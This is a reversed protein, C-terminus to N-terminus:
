LGFDIVFSYFKLLLYTDIEKCNEFAILPTKEVLQAVVFSVLKKYFSGFYCCLIYEKLFSLVNVRAWFLFIFDYQYCIPSAIITYM